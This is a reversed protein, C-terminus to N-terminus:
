SPACHKGGEFTAVVHETDLTRPLPPTQIDVVEHEPGVGLGHVRLDEVPEDAFRLDIRRPDAHKGTREGAIEARTSHGGVVPIGRQDAIRRLRVHPRLDRVTSGTPDSGRQHGRGALDAGVLGLEETGAHCHM